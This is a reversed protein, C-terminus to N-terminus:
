IEFVAGQLDKVWGGPSGTPAAVALDMWYTTGLTLGTLITFVTFGVQDSTASQVLHQTISFQTGTIAAGAAPAAGTGYYGTVDTENGASTSNQAVGAILIFCKGSSNPTIV